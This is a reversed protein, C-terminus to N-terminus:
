HSSAYHARITESDGEPQVVRRELMADLFLSKQGQRVYAKRIGIFDAPSESRLRGGTGISAPWGNRDLLRSLTPHTLM